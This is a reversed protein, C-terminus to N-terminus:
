FNFLKRNFVHLPGRNNSERVSLCIWSLKFILTIAVLDFYISVLFITLEAVVIQVTSVLCELIQLHKIYFIYQLWHMSHSDNSSM